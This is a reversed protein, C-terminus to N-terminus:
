QLVEVGQFVAKDTQKHQQGCCLLIMVLPVCNNETRWMRVPERVCLMRAASQSTHSVALAKPEGSLRAHTQSTGREQLKGSTIIGAYELFRQDQTKKM